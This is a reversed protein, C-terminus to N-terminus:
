INPTKTGIRLSLHGDIICLPSAKQKWTSWSIVEIVEKENRVKEQKWAPITQLKKWEKDVAAKVDPIKISQPKPFFKHVLNYHNMSTKGRGAIHEEHHKPQSLEVRPRTSEHSEVICGCRSKFDQSSASVKHEQRWFSHKSQRDCANCTGNSNGFKRRANKMTDQYEEDNPDIFYIGRLQRDNELKPKEIAWEQKKEIRVSSQKKKKQWNAIDTWANKLMDKWTTPGRQLKRMHSKGNQYKKDSWCFYTIWVDKQIKWYNHWKTQMWTSHM